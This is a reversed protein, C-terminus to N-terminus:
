PKPWRSGRPPWRRWPGSTSTTMKRTRSATDSACCDAHHRRRHAGRDEPRTATLSIQHLFNIGLLKRQITTYPALIFDDQDQGWQGQGKRAFVGVVRFPLNKVRVIQGVPDQEPFLTMPWRPASSASRTPSSSIARRSTPAQRSSGTACPRRLRHKGRGGLHELEPERGRGPRPGSRVPTWLGVTPVQQAIAEADDMTLKSTTGTGQRVGGGGHSGASVYILTVGQAEIQADISARAGSGLAIMTIVSAVGIIVGLMTLTSRVKNRLIARAAIRITNPVEM